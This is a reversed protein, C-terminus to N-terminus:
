VAAKAGATRNGTAAPIHSLQSVAAIELSVAAAQADTDKDLSNSARRM